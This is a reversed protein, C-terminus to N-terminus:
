CIVFTHSVPPYFKRTSLTNTGGVTYCRIHMECNKYLNSVSTFLM